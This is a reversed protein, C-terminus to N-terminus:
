RPTGPWPQALTALVNRDVKAYTSTTAPDHHRLVQAVEALSAGQRLMQTAATHRLRHPGIRPVGARECARYVVDTVSPQCLRAFPARATIFVERAV